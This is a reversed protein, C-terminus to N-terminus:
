VIHAIADSIDQFLACSISHGFLLCQDVFYYVKGDVPNEVKLVLWPWSDPGLGVNRFASSYDSKDLYVVQNPQESIESLCLRIVEDFNAYNVHCLEEPTNKISQFM